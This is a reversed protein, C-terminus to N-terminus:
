DGNTQYSRIVTGDVELEIRLPNPVQYSTLDAYAIMEGNDDTGVSLTFSKLKDLFLKLKQDHENHELVYHLALQSLTLADKNPWQPFNTADTGQVSINKLTKGRVDMYLEIKNAKGDQGPYQEAVGLYVPDNAGGELNTFLITRFKTQYSSDIKGTQVLKEVRHLALEVVQATTGTNAAFGQSTIVTALLVSGLIKM